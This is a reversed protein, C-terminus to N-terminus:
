DEWTTRYGQNFGQNIGDKVGRAYAAKEIREVEKMVEIDGGLDPYGRLSGRISELMEEATM